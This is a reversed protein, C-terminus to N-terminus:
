PFIVQGGTLKADAQDLQPQAVGRQPNVRYAVREVAPRLDANWNMGMVQSGM